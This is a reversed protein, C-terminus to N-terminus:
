REAKRIKQGLRTIEAYAKDNAFAGVVQRYWPASHSGDKAGKLSAVERELQAVREELKKLPTSMSPEKYFRDRSVTSGFEVSYTINSLAWQTAQRLISIADCQRLM